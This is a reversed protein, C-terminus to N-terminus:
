RMVLMNRLWYNFLCLWYYDLWQNIIITFQSDSELFWFISECIALPMIINDVLSIQVFVNSKEWFWNCPNFITMNDFGSFSISDFIFHKITLLCFIIESGGYNDSFCLLDALYCITFQNLFKFGAGLRMPDVLSQVAWLRSLMKGKKNKCIITQYGRLGIV